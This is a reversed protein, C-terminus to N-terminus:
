PPEEGLLLYLLHTRSEVGIKDYIHSLHDKVTAASIRLRAAIEKNSLGARLCAVVDRERPTLAAVPSRRSAQRTSGSLRPKTLRGLAAAVRDAVFELRESCEASWSLGPAEAVGLAGYCAGEFWLRRYRRWGVTVVDDSTEALRALDAPGFLGSVASNTPGASDYTTKMCSGTRKLRFACATIPLVSQLLRSSGALLRAEDPAALLRHLLGVFVATEAVVM